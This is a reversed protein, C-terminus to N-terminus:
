SRQQVNDGRLHVDLLHYTKEPNSGFGPSRRRYGLLSPKPNKLLKDIIDDLLWTKQVSV